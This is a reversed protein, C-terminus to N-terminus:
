GTLFLVSNLRTKSCTVQGHMIASGEASLDCSDQHGALLIVSMLPGSPLSAFYNQLIPDLTHDNFGM